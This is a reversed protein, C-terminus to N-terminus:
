SSAGVQCRPGNILFPQPDGLQPLSPAPLPVPLPLPPKAVDSGEWRGEEWVAGRGSSSSGLWCGQAAWDSRPKSFPGQRGGSGPDWRCLGPAQRRHLLSVHTIARLSPCDQLVPRLRAASHSGSLSVVRGAPLPGGPPLQLQGGSLLAGGPALTWATGMAPVTYAASIAGHSPEPEPTFPAPGPSPIPVLSAGAPGLDQALPHPPPVESQPRLDWWPLASPSMNTPVFIPTNSPLSLSDNRPVSLRKLCPHGQVQGSEERPRVCQTNVNPRPSSGPLFAKVEGGSRVGHKHPVTLDRGWPIGVELPVLCFVPGEWTGSLGRPHGASRPLCPIPENFVQSGAVLGCLEWAWPLGSGRGQPGLVMSRPTGTVQIISRGGCPSQAISWQGDSPGTGTSPSM